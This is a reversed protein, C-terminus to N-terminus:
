LWGMRLLSCMSQVCLPDTAVLPSTQILNRFPYKRREAECHIMQLRPHHTSGGACIRLMARDHGAEEKHPHLQPPSCHVRGGGGEATSVLATM